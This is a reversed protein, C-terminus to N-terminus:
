CSRYPPNKRHSWIVNGEEGGYDEEEDPVWVWVKYEGSM